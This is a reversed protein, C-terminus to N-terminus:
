RRMAQAPILYPDGTRKDTVTAYGLIQAGNGLNVFMNLRFPGGAPPQFSAFEAGFIDNLQTMSYPEVTYIRTGYVIGSWDVLQVGAELLVGSPNMVVANTRLVPDNTLGTVYLDGFISDDFGLANHIPQGPSYQGYTGPTAGAVNYTNSTVMVPNSAVVNLIGFAETRGFYNRVIDTLSVSERPALPPTLRIGELQSGDVGAPTFYLSVETDNTPEPNFIWVDTRFVGTAGTINVAPLFAETTVNSDATAPGAALSVAALLAVVTSSVIRSM